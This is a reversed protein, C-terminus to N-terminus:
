FDPRNRAAENVRERSAEGAIQAVRAAMRDSSSGALDVDIADITISRVLGEPTWQMRTRVVRSCGAKRGGAIGGTFLTSRMMAHNGVSPGAGVTDIPYSNHLAIRCDERIAPGLQRGSADWYWLMAVGHNNQPGVGFRFTPRDLGGNTWSPRGYKQSLRELVGQVQPMEGEAYERRYGVAYAQTASPPPAFVATVTESSGPGRDAQLSLMSSLFELDPRKNIRVRDVFFGAKQRTTSASETAPLGEARLAAQVEAPTMGLKLGRVDFTAATSAAAKGAVSLVLLVALIPWLKGNRLPAARRSVAMGM